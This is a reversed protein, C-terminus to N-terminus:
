ESVPHFDRAGSAWWVTSVPHVSQHTLSRPIAARIIAPTERDLSFLLLPVSLAFTSHDFRSFCEPSLTLLVCLPGHGCPYTIGQLGLKRGRQTPEGMRPPSAFQFYNASSSDGTDAFCMNRLWQLGDFAHGERGSPDSISPLAEQFSGPLGIALKPQINSSPTQTEPCSATLQSLWRQRDGAKQSTSPKAATLRPHDHIKRGSTM